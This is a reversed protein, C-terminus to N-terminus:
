TALRGMLVKGNARPPLFFKSRVWRLAEVADEADNLARHNYTTSRREKPQSRPEKLSLATLTVALYVDYLTM